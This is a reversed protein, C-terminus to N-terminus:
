VRFGIGGYPGIDWPMDGISIEVVYGKEHLNKRAMFKFRAPDTKDFPLFYSCIYNTIGHMELQKQTFTIGEMTGVRATIIVPILGKKKAYHYTAIIPHIPKDGTDILTGDIDFVIVSKSSVTLKDITDVIQKAVENRDM